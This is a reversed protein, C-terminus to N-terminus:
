ILEKWLSGNWYKTSMTDTLVDIVIGLAMKTPDDPTPEDDTSLWGYEPISGSLQVTNDSCSLSDAHGNVTIAGSSYASIRARIYKIGNCPIKYFGASTVSSTILGGTINQADIAGFVSNNLSGEFVITGIFTGSVHCIATGMGSVNLVTGNGTTTSANQMTTVATENATTKTFLSKTGDLLNSLPFQAM